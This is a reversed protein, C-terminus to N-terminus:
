AFCTGTNPSALVSTIDPRLLLSLRVKSAQAPPLSETFKDGPCPKLQLNNSTSLASQLRKQLGAWSQLLAQQRTKFTALEGDLRAEDESLPRPISWHLQALIATEFSIPHTPMIQSPSSYFPMLAHHGEFIHCKSILVEM